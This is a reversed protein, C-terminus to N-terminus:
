GVGMNKRKIAEFNPPAPLQDEQVMRLFDERDKATAARNFRREFGITSSTKPSMYRGCASGSYHAPYVELHDELGLLRQVSEYLDEPRGWLGLDPRGVDGVFLTDGTLVFWPDPGRTHDEVLISISEPTHGPTHLVKLRQNGFRVIDGERLPKFPYRVGAAEHLRLAADTADVLARAGSVHDAHIHTDVVQVIRLEEADAVHLYPKVDEQPDVVACEGSSYCGIVYSLCSTQERALQKFYM